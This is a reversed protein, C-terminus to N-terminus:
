CKPKLMKGFAIAFLMAITILGAALSAGGIPNVEGSWSVIANEKPVIVLAADTEILYDGTIFERSVRGEYKASTVGTRVVTADSWVQLRAAANMGVFVVIVGIFFRVIISM